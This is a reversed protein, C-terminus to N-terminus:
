GKSQVVYLASYDIYPHCWDLMLLQQRTSWLYEHIDLKTVTSHWCLVDVFATSCAQTCWGTDINPHGCHPFACGVDACLWSHGTTVDANQTQLHFSSDRLDRWVEAVHMIVCKLHDFWVAALPTFILHCMSCKPKADQKFLHRFWKFYFTSCRLWTQCCDQNPVCSKMRHLRNQSQWSPLSHKAWIHGVDANNKDM